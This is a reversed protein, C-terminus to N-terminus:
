SSAKKLAEVAKVLVEDPGEGTRTGSNAETDPAIPNKEIRVGQASVYDQVPYQVEFGHALRGYVSALVAGATKTGILPSKANERLACAAIESASGSRGNILVAIKGKFHEVSGKATKFKATSWKALEVPDDTKSGKAKEYERSTYRSVFTGIVTDPPLLLSLLHRLNAVAGGGNNRLDLVLYKAKKENAEKIMKEINDRSYGNAFSHLKLIATEEDQWTLTDARATSFRKRVLKVERVEGAKNKVKVTIESNEEGNLVAPSEPAKGDVEIIIDGEKIGAEDAPSKPFLMRVLLGEDVKNASLGVGITTGSRRGQSARPTRLNIHSIGFNRLARNVATVFAREDEAKDISERQKELNESWKSFDVLPVYAREQLIKQLDNLVEEKQEKTIAQAWSAAALLLTFLLSLAFRARSFRQAIM